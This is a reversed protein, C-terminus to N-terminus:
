SEQSKQTSDTTHKGNSPVVILADKGEYMTRFIQFDDKPEIQNDQVFVAPIKIGIGSESGGYKFVKSNAIKINM